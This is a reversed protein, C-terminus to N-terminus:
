LTHAISRKSYISYMGDIEQIKVLCACYLIDELVIEGKNSYELTIYIMRQEVEDTYMIEDLTHIGDGRKIYQYTNPLLRGEADIQDLLDTEMCDTDLRSISDLIEVESVEVTLGANEGVLGNKSFVYPMAIPEGIKYITGMEEASVDQKMTRIYVEEETNTKALRVPDEEAKEVVKLGEAFRIANEKSVTSSLFLQVVMEAEPYHIYM